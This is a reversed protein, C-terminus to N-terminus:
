RDSVAEHNPAEFDCGDPHLAPQRCVRGTKLDLTGCRGAGASEEDVNANHFDLRATGQPRTSLLPDLMM